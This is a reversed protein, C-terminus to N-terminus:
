IFGGGSRMNALQISDLIFTEIERGGISVPIIIDGQPTNSGSNQIRNDNKTTSSNYYNNTTMIPMASLGVSSSVLRLQGSIKQFDIDPMQFDPKFGSSLESSIQEMDPLNGQLGEGIGLGLYKGIEDRM